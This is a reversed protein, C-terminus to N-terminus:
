KDKGGSLFFYPCFSLWIDHSSWHEFLVCTGQVTCIKTYIHTSYPSSTYSTHTDPTDDQPPTQRIGLRNSGIGGGGSTSDVGQQWWSGAVLVAPPIYKLVSDKQLAYIGYPAAALQAIM